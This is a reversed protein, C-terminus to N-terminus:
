KWACLSAEVWSMWLWLCANHTFVRNNTICAVPTYETYVGRRITPVVNRCDSVAHQFFLWESGKTLSQLIGGGHIGNQWSSNQWPSSSSSSTHPLNEQQEKYWKWGTKPDVVYDYDESGEFQQNPNQRMQKIPHIPKCLQTTEAM